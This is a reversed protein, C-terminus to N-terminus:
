ENFVVAMVLIVEGFYTFGLTFDLFVRLEEVFMVVQDGLEFLLNGLMAMRVHEEVLLVQCTTKVELM